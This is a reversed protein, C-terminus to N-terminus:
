VKGIFLKGVERAYKKDAEEAKKLEGELWTIITAESLNHIRRDEADGNRLLRVKWRAEMMIQEYIKLRASIHVGYEHAARKLTAVYNTVSVQGGAERSKKDIGLAKELERIEAASKEITARARAEDAPKMQIRVYRGTPLGHPDFEPMMGSLEQQARFLSLQQALIAGLLVLDNTKVLSYDEQYRKSSAEWLQAEDITQVHLSGGAPLEVEFPGQPNPPTTQQSAAPAGGGATPDVPESSVAQDSHEDSM